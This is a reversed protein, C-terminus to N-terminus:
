YYLVLNKILDLREEVADLRKPNFEVRDRYDRLDRALERFQEGLSQALDRHEGVSADIKALGSLARAAEGLLDAASPTEDTGDSLAHLADDALAALKEANALRTREELLTKDEGSRLRASAIENIQFNLMDLRRETERESLRLENLEKRVGNLERVVEALAEREDDFNAFRDLLFLHERTRLLSLHESQGHVDVLLQGIEKLVALSVVRGNVRCVNRGERRVERALTIESAADGDLLEERALIAEVDPRLSEDVRFLAEVRAVDAGTRVMTAEARGGLLLDVADIIISKGAGTEGTFAVFGQALQLHLRDIIAFDTITLESLM